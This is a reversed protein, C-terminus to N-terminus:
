YKYNKHPKRTKLMWKSNNEERIGNELRASKRKLVLGEIMDVKTIDHFLDSFESEYSKVRFINESIQTLYNWKCEESKFMKDLISLRDVTSSGLLHMSDYVLVDFIVLKHNFLDGWDDMKAKNMYEANIVYWGDKGKFLSEVESHINCNGLSEGHRNMARCQGDGIFFTANSGNMKPQGILTTNDWYDLDSPPFTNKPRPPYIYRFKEYKMNLYVFNIHYVFIVRLHDELLMLEM